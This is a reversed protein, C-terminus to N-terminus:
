SVICTWAFVTAAKFLACVGGDLLICINSSIFPFPRYLFNGFLFNLLNPSHNWDGDPPHGLHWLSITLSILQYTNGVGGGGKRCGNCVFNNVLNQGM